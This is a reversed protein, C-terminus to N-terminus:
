EGGDIGVAIGPRREGAGLPAVLARLHEKALHTYGMTTRLDAHGLAEKVLVPSRGEALWATARRHRLDHM